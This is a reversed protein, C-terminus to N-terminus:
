RGFSRVADLMAAINEIPTNPQVNHVAGFVFGGGQAFIECRRLVQARVEAPTGFPLVRQTDIGGGWFVIDRGFRAKLAAPEMGAASCQVPNLIDFGAEIFLPIFDAVAGCSHKFTKWATHAHVWDNMKRYYPLYLSRFTAPSCFTGTQTGFDTGCIYIIDIRDGFAQHMARLNYLAIDTQREFVARLYAPREAISIYWEAVDRIGRPHKLFPAPVQAIGGLGTGGVGVLVARGSAEAAEVRAAYWRLDEGTLRAFEELNDDPNLCDDDIPPQRVIADFYFGGKPMRGSAPATLDGQPYILTDGREDVTTAMGAPVLVALGNPLRWEKWVGMRNGFMDRGPAVSFVDAGIARALDPAIEGLMQYTDVVKVPERPLGLHARLADVCTVHMGTVTTGGFDVPIASPQRHNLARLVRSRASM